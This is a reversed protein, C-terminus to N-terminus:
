TFVASVNHLKKCAERISQVCSDDLIIASDLDVHHLSPIQQEGVIWKEGVEMDEPDLICRHSTGCCHGCQVQTCATLAYIRILPSLPRMITNGRNPGTQKRNKMPKKTISFATISMAVNSITVFM